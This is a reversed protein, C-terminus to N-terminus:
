RGVYGNRISQRQSQVIRIIDNFEKIDSAPISVNIYNVTGGMGDPIEGNPYVKSGRPLDVIEPGREGVVAYGGPHNYTGTAYGKASYGGFLVKVDEWAGAILEGFNKFPLEFTTLAKGIDKLGQIFDSIMNRKVASLTTGFVDTKRKAEDLSAVTENSMVLGLDHAEQMYKRMVDAGADFIPNLQRAEEGILAVAASLREAPDETENLSDVIDYFIDIIPRVKGTDDTINVGLRNFAEIAADTNKRLDEMSAEYEENIKKLNKAYKREYEAIAEELEALTKYEEGKPQNALYDNLLEQKKQAAEQKLRETESYYDEVVDKAETAKLTIENLADDIADMEVGLNSAAYELAQYTEADLGMKQSKNTLEDAWRLTEKTVDAVKDAVGLLMSIVGGVALSVDDFGSVINKIGDPIEVGSIDSIKELMDYLANGGEDAVNKLADNNKDMQVKMDALEDNAKDIKRQFEEVEDSNKGYLNEANKLERNLTEIIRQQKNMQDSLLDNQEKLIKQKERLEKSSGGMSEYQTELKEFQLRQEDAGASLEAIYDDLRRLNEEYEELGNRYQEMSEWASDMETQNEQMANSMKALELRAASLQSELNTLAATGTDTTQAMEAYQAELLRVKEAQNEYATELVKQKSAMAELSNDNLRHQEEVLKLEARNNKLAADIASLAKKFDQEGQVVMKIGADAM